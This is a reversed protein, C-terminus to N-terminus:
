PKPELAARAVDAMDNAVTLEQTAPEMDIIRQHAARLRLNELFYKERDINIREIEDRLGQIHRMRAGFDTM